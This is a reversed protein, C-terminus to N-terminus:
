CEVEIGTLNFPFRLAHTEGLMSTSERQSITNLHYVCYAQCDIGLSARSGSLSLVASSYSNSLSKQPVSPKETSLFRDPSKQTRKQPHTNTCIPTHTCEHRIMYTATNRHTCNHTLMSLRTDICTHTNLILTLVWPGQLWCQALAQCPWEGVSLMILGRCGSSLVVDHVFHTFLTQCTKLITVNSCAANSQFALIWAMCIM